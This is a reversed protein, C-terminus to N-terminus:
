LDFKKEFESISMNNTQMLKGSGTKLITNNHANKTRLYNCKLMVKKMVGAIDDKNYVEKDILLFDKAISFNLYSMLFMILKGRHYKANFTSSKLDISNNSAQNNFKKVSNKKGAAVLQRNVYEDEENLSHMQSLIKLYELSNQNYYVEDEKPKFNTSNINYLLPNESILDQNEEEFDINKQYYKELSKYKNNKNNSEKGIQPINKVKDLNIINSNKPSNAMREIMLKRATKAPTNKHHNIEHSSLNSSSKNQL